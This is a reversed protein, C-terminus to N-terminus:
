PRRYASVARRASGAADLAQELTARARAMGRECRAHLAALVALTEGDV